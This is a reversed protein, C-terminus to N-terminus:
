ALCPSYARLCTPNTSRIVAHMAYHLWAKLPLVKVQCYSSDSEGWSTWQIPVCKSFNLQDDPHSAETPKEVGCVACNVTLTIQLCKMIWVDIHSQLKGGRRVFLLSVATWRRLTHQSWFCFSWCEIPVFHLLNLCLSLMRSSLVHYSLSSYNLTQASRHAQGPAGIPLVPLGKYIHCFM